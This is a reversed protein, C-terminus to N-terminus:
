GRVAFETIDVVKVFHIIWMQQLKQFDFFKLSCLHCKILTEYAIVLLFKLCLFPGSKINWETAWIKLFAMKQTWDSYMEMSLQEKEKILFLFSLQSFSIEKRKVYVTIYEAKNYFSLDRRWKNDPQQTVTVYGGFGPNM